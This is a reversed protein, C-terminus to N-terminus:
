GPVTGVLTSGATEIDPLLKLVFIGPSINQTGCHVKGGRLTFGAVTRARPFTGLHPSIGALSSPSWHM